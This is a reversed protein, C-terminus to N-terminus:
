FPKACQTIEFSNKRSWKEGNNKPCFSYNQICIGNQTFSTHILATAYKTNFYNEKSIMKHEM